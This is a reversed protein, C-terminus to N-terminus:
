LAKADPLQALLEDVSQDVSKDATDIVIHDRSWPHYEHSLVAQWSPLVHGDIDSRRQEVRQRHQEQNTCIIEIEVFNSQTRIAVDRWGQRSLEIPNVSDAVVIRGAALNDEAIAYGVLYGTEAVAEIELSSREIAQEITDVRLYTAGLHNVLKKAIMTKGVGPLGALIIFLRPRRTLMTSCAVARYVVQAWRENASAAYLYLINGKTILQKNAGAVIPAWRAM